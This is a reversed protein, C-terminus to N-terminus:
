MPMKPDMKMDPDMKMKPDMKTAPKAKNGSEDMDGMASLWPEPDLPHIHVMWGTSRIFTGGAEKCAAETSISGHFGFKKNATLWEGQYTAPPECYNVHAHWQVLSMPINRNLEEATALPNHDTHMLAVLRYGSDPKDPNTKAYVPTWWSPRGAAHIFHYEDQKVDPEVPTFGDAEADRYDEYKVWFAKADALVRAVRERDGHQEPLLPTMAMHDGMPM